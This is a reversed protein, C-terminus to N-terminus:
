DRRITADWAHRIGILLLLGVVLALVGSAWPASQVSAAKPAARAIAALQLLRRTVAEDIGDRRMLQQVIPESFLHDLTPEASAWPAIADRRISDTM